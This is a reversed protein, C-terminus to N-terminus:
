KPQLSSFLMPAFFSNSTSKSALARASKAIRSNHLIGSASLKTTATGWWSALRITEHALILLPLLCPCCVTPNQQQVRTQSEWNTKARCHHQIHVIKPKADIVNSKTAKNKTSHLSKFFFEFNFKEINWIYLMKFIRYGIFTKFCCFFLKHYFHNTQSNDQFRFFTKGSVLFYNWNWNSRIFLSARRM